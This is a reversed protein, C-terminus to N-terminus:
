HLRRDRKSAYEVWAYYAGGALTISIGLANTPTITLNFLSVAFLITLVQKVNAAVTMSLPGVRGNATFSVVNLGFAIFGNMLLTLLLSTSMRSLSAVTNSTPETCNYITGNKDIISTNFNNQSTYSFFSAPVNFLFSVTTNSTFQRLRVLEGSLQALLVCQVFALPSMRTLLDLPHLGLNPPVLLRLWGHRSFNSHSSETTTFADQRYRNSTNKRHSPGSSYLRNYITYTSPRSPLSPPAAHASSKTSAQLVNTYITKLAALITGLLTLLLGPTTFYYDGFTALVVGVIVPLLAMLRSRTVHTGLLLSSLVTTFLPTIARVVQHFPVTVLHLSVNSVAINVAYLISFGALALESKGSLRKPQYYGRLRLIAGGISSCLAHLATLTYPFPFEGM